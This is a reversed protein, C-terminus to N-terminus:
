YYQSPSRGTRPAAKWSDCLDTLFFFTVIEVFVIGSHLLLDQCHMMGAGGLGAKEPTGETVDGETTLFSPIFSKM